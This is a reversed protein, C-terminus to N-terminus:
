PVFLALAVGLVSGVVVELPKHGIKEKLNKNMHLPKHEPLNKVLDNVVKAQEGAALRVGMADYMVLFAFIAGIAFLPSGMGESRAISTCLACVTASHSSPMGGSSLFVKRISYEKVKIFSIVVKIIQATMWGIFSCLLMHNGTIDKVYSM